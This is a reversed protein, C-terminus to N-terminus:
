GKLFPISFLQTVCKQHVVELLSRAKDVKTLMWQKAALITAQSTGVNDLLARCEKSEEATFAQAVLTCYSPFIAWEWAHPVLLILHARSADM